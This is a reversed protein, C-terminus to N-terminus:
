VAWGTKAPEEITKGSGGFPEPMDAFKPLGDAMDLAREAYFIHMTPEFRLDSGELALAYVVMRGIEPKGNAVAGGCRACSIRRSAPHKSSELTDGTITVKDEPWICWANVPAAHWKRCSHCHCYASIDPNGEVRVTVAGCYCGGEYHKEGM